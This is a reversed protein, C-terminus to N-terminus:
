VTPLSRLLPFGLLTRESQRKADDVNIRKGNLMGPIPVYSPPMVLRQRPSNPRELLWVRHNGSVEESEVGKQTM